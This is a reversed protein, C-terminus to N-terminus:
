GETMYHARNASRNQPFHTHTHKKRLAKWPFAKRCLGGAHSLLLHCESRMVSGAENRKQCCGSRPQSPYQGSERAREACDAGEPVGQLPPLQQRYGGSCRCSGNRGSVSVKEVGHWRPVQGVHGACVGWMCVRAHGDWTLQLVYM